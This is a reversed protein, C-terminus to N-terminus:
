KKVGKKELLPNMYLLIVLGMLGYYHDGHLHSIFIQNIKGKNLQFETLRMQTGEGCDILYQHYAIQLLQSTSFRGHAPLASSTGLLTLQFPM